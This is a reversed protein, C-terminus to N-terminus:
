EKNEFHRNEWYDEFWSMKESHPDVFDFHEAYKLEFMTSHNPSKFELVALVTNAGTDVMHPTGKNEEVLEALQMWYISEFFFLSLNDFKKM